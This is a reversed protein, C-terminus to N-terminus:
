NRVVRKDSNVLYFRHVIVLIRKREKYMKTL